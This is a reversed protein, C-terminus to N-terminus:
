ERGADAKEEGEGGVGKSGAGKEAEEGEGAGKEAEEGEGAGKEAEEGEGAGKEAEKSGAGKEAEEGEGAGKEAEEGEGAGKEAEKSGAGPELEEGGVGAEVEKLGDVIMNLSANAETYRTYSGIDDGLLSGLENYQTKLTKLKGAIEDHTAGDKDITEYLNHILAIVDTIEKKEPNNDTEAELKLGAYHKTVFELVSETDPVADAM